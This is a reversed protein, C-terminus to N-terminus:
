PGGGSRRSRQVGTEEPVRVSDRTTSPGQPQRGAYAQAGPRLYAWWIRAIDPVTTVFDRARLKSGRVDRWEFLTLEYIRRELPERGSERALAKLRALIEVDFVWRSLFPEAFVARLDPTVAFLKAGCQTDYVRMGLAVSVITAFIRGLYHRGLHREISRGLLQVRTGIVVERGSRASLVHLFQDLADLPTALDADWFAVADAGRDIAALVGRRVAEAKGVNRELTLVAVREPEARHLQDLVAPTADTSGDDVFLLDINDRRHLLEGFAAVDLREAENYCPLVVVTSASM